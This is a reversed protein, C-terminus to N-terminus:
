WLSSKNIENAKIEYVLDRKGKEILADKICPLYNKLKFLKLSGREEVVKKIKLHIIANWKLTRMQLIRAIDFDTSNM